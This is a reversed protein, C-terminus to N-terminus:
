FIKGVRGKEGSPDVRKAQARSKEKEMRARAERGNRPLSPKGPLSWSSTQLSQRFSASKSCM